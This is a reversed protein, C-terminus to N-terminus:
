VNAGGDIRFREGGAYIILNRDGAGGDEILIQGNMATAAAPLNATAVVPTDVGEVIGVYPNTFGSIINGYARCRTDTAAIEFGASASGEGIISNSAFLVDTATAGAGGRLNVFKTNCDRGTNGVVVMRDVPTNTGSRLFQAFDGRVVNGVVSWESHSAAGILDMFIPGNTTDGDTGEFTNGVITVDSVANSFQVGIPQARGPNFHITNGILVVHASTDIRMCVGFDAIDCDIIHLVQVKNFRIGATTPGGSSLGSRIGMSRISFYQPQNTGDGFTIGTGSSVQLRLQSENMGNGILSIREKNGVTLASSCLYVGKPFYIAGGGTSPLEDLAAQIATSDDTTGDGEADFHQKVDFVVNHFAAHRDRADTDNEIPYPM